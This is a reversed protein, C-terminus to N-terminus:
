QPAEADPGTYAGWGPVTEIGSHVAGDGHYTREQRERIRAVALAAVNDRDLVRLLVREDDDPRKRGARWQDIVAAERDIILALEASLIGLSILRADLAKHDFAQTSM